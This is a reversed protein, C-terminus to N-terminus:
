VKELMRQSDYDVILNADNTLLTETVVIFDFQFNISNLFQDLSVFNM